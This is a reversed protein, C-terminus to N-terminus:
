ESEPVPGRCGLLVKSTATGGALRVRCRGRPVLEAQLAECEEISYHHPSVIMELLRWEKAHRGGEIVQFGPAHCENPPRQRSRGDNEM